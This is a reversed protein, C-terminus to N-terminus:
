AYNEINRVLKDAEDVELGVELARVYVLNDWGEVGNAKLKSGIAFLNNNRSGPPLPNALEKLLTDKQLLAAMLEDEEMDDTIVLPKIIKLAQRREKKATLIERLREPLPAVPLDNWRQTHYHYVCGTARLDIGQALGIHDNFLAFGQEDDWPEDTEYFLHVGNGSKSTEALTPPLEGLKLTSDFGGNKGDIDVCILAQARMVYAFPEQRTRYANVVRRLRFEGRMYRPMFSPKGAKPSRKPELLGWGSQTRGNEYVEVAATGRPGSAVAGFPDTDDRTFQTTEM